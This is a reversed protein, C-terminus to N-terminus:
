PKEKKMDNYIITINEKQVTTLELEKGLDLIYIHRPGPYGNSEALKAM